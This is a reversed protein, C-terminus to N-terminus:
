VWDMIKDGPKEKPGGRHRNQLLMKFLLFKLRLLFLYNSTYNLSLWFELCFYNRFFLKEWKKMDYLKKLNNLIVHFFNLFSLLNFHFSLVNLCFSVLEAIKIIGLPSFVFGWKICTCVRCVGCCSCGERENTVRRIPRIQFSVPGAGSGATVM